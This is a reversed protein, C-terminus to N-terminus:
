NTSNNNNDDDNNKSYVINKCNNEVNKIDFNIAKDKFNDKRDIWLKASVSDGNTAEIQLTVNHQRQNIKKLYATGDITFQFIGQCSSAPISPFWPSTKKSSTSSSLLSPSPSSSQQELSHPLSQQEQMATSPPWLSSSPALSPPPSPQTSPLAPQLRMFSRDQSPYGQSSLSSSSWTSSSSPSPQLLSKDSSSAPPLQQTASSLSSKTIQNPPTTTSGSRAIESALNLGQIRNGLNNM